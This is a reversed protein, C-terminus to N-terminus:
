EHEYEGRPTKKLEALEENRKAGRSLRFRELLEGAFRKIVVGDNDLMKDKLRFGWNMALTENMVTIVGSRVEIVWRYGPFARLIHDLLVQGQHIDAITPGYVPLYGFAQIMKLYARQRQPNDKLNLNTLYDIM